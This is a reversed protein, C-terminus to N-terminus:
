LAAITCLPDPPANLKKVFHFFKIGVSDEFQGEEMIHMLHRLVGNRSEILNAHQNPARVRLQTGLRKLEAKSEEEPTTEVETDKGFGYVSAADFGYIAAADLDM